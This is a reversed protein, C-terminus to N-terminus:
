FVKIQNVIADEHMTDNFEVKLVIDEKEKAENTSDNGETIGLRNQQVHYAAIRIFM